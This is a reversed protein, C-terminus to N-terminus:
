SFKACIGFNRKFIYLIISGWYRDVYMASENVICASYFQLRHSCFVSHVFLALFVPVSWSDRKESCRREDLERPWQTSQWTSTCRYDCSTQNFVFSLNEGGCDKGLFVVWLINNRANVKQIPKEMKTNKEIGTKKKTAEKKHTGKRESKRM